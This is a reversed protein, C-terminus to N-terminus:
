RRGPDFHWDSDDEQPLSCLIRKEHIRRNKRLQKLAQRYHFTGNLPSVFPQLMTTNLGSLPRRWGCLAVTTVPGAPVSGIFLM